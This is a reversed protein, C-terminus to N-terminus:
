RNATNAFEASVDRTIRTYGKRDSSTTVTSDSEKQTSRSLTALPYHSVLSTNNVQMIGSQLSQMLPWFYVVCATSISAFQALQMCIYYPAARLTYNDEVLRPVYYLQFSIAVIALARTSYFALIGLRTKMPMHLPLIILAPLVCLAADTAISNGAVFALIPQQAPCAAADVKWPRRLGCQFAIALLGSIAFLAILTILVISMARHTRDPSLTFMSISASLKSVGICLVFLMDRAYGARLGSELDHDSIQSSDRGFVRSEPIIMTSSEGLSLIYATIILGDELTFRMNGKIFFRTMLRFGLMLSTLSILLWTTLQIVPNLNSEDVENVATNPTNDSGPSLGM